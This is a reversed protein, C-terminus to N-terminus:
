GNGAEPRVETEQDCDDSFKADCQIWLANLYIGM